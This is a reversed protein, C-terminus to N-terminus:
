CGRWKEMVVAAAAAAAAGVAVGDWGLAEEEIWVGGAEDGTECEGEGIMAPMEAEERGGEEEEEGAEEEEEEEEEPRCTSLLCEERKSERTWAAATEEGTGAEETRAERARSFSTM